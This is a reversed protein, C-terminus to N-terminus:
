LKALESEAKKIDDQVQKLLKDNKQSKFQSEYERLKDIDRRLQDSKEKNHQSQNLAQEYQDFDFMGSQSNSPLAKTQDEDDFRSLRPSVIENIYDRLNRHVNLFDGIGGFMPSRHMSPHSMHNEQLFNHYDQPNDFTKEVKKVKGDVNEYVYVSGKFM